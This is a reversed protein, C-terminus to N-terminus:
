CILLNEVCHAIFHVHQSVRLRVIVAHVFAVGATSQQERSALTRANGSTHLSGSHEALVRLVGLLERLSSGTQHAHQEQEALASM